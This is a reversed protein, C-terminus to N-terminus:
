KHEVVTSVFGQKSYNKETYIYFTRHHSYSVAQNHPPENDSVVAQSSHGHAEWVTTRTLSLTPYEINLIRNCIDHIAEKHVMFACYPREMTTHTTLIFNSLEVVAPFVKPVSSFNGDLRCRKELMWTRSEVLCERIQQANQDKEDGSIQVSTGPARSVLLTPIFPSLCMCDGIFTPLKFYCFGHRLALISNRLVPDFNGSKKYEYVAGLQEERSGDGLLVPQSMCAATGTGRYGDTGAGLQPANQKQVDGLLRFSALRQSLAEPKYNENDKAGDLMQHDFCFVHELFCHLIPVLFAGECLEVNTFDM